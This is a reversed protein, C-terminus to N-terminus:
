QMGSSMDFMDRGLNFELDPWALTEMVVPDFDGMFPWPINLDRAKLPEAVESETSAEKDVPEPMNVATSNPSTFGRFDNTNQNAATQKSWSETSLTATERSVFDVLQSMPSSVSTASTLSSYSMTIAVLAKRAAYFNQALFKILGFATKFSELGAKPDVDGDGDRLACTLHYLSETLNSTLLSAGPRLM